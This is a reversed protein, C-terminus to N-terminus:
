SKRVEEARSDRASSPTVSIKKWHNTIALRPSAPVLRTAMETKERAM